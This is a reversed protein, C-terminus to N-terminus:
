MVQITRNEETFKKFAELVQEKTKTTKYDTCHYEHKQLLFEYECNKRLTKNIGTGVKIFKRKRDAQLHYIDLAWKTFSQNNLIAVWSVDVCGAKWHFVTKTFFFSKQCHCIPDKFTGSELPDISIFFFIGVLSQDM